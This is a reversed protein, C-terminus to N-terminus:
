RACSELFIKRSRSILVANAQFFYLVDIFIDPIFVMFIAMYYPSHRIFWLMTWITWIIHKIFVKEAPTNLVFGYNCQVKCVSRALNNNSCILNGNEISEINECSQNHDSNLKNNRAFFRPFEM